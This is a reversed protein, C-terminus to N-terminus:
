DDTESRVSTSSLSRKDPWGRLNGWRDIGLHQGFHHGIQTKPLDCLMAGSPSPMECAPPRTTEVDSTYPAVLDIWSLHPEDMVACQQQESM